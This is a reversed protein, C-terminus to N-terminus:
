GSTMKWSGGPEELLIVEHARAIAAMTQTPSIPPNAFTIDLRKVNNRASSELIILLLEDVFSPSIADVGEFDLRLKRNGKVFRTDIADQLDHAVGRSVIARKAISDHIKIITM